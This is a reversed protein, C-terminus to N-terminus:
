LKGAAPKNKGSRFLRGPPQNRDTLHGRGGSIIKEREAGPPSPRPSTATQLVEMGELWAVCVAALQTLETRVDEHTHYKSKGATFEVDDIARAIEGLEGTAIRLKRDDSVIPSDCNFHIKGDRLLERQRLREQAIREFVAMMAPSNKAAMKSRGDAMKTKM